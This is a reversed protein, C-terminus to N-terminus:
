LYFNLLLNILIDMSSVKLRFVEEVVRIIKKKKKKYGIWINSLFLNPSYDTAGPSVSTLPWSLKALRYANETGNMAGHGPVSFVKVNTQLQHKNNLTKICGVVVNSIIM